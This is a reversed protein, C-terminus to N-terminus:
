KRKAAKKAPAKKAAAKKAPAKKAPTAKRKVPAPKPAATPKPTHAVVPPAVVEETIEAGAAAPLPGLCEYGTWDKADDLGALFDAIAQKGSFHKSEGTASNRIEIDFNM